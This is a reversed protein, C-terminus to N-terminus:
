GCALASVPAAFAGAVSEAWADIADWDRADSAPMASFPFRLKAPDVVGGFAATSVPEIGPVRALARELQRQAGDMDKDATTLPGMGFVAIPVAKLAKRNRKLFRLADAHWRGFYLAGGLVVGEYRAADGVAAAPQIEVELQEQRLKAAIAEAVERTSGHKSAYAVLIM